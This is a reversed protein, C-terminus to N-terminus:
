EFLLYSKQRRKARRVAEFDLCLSMNVNAGMPRWLGLLFARFYTSGLALVAIYLFDAMGYRVLIRLWYYRYININVRNNMFWAM